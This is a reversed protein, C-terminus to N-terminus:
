ATGAYGAVIRGIVLVLAPRLFVASWYQAWDTEHNKYTESHGTFWGILLAFGLIMPWPPVPMGFYPTVFWGWLATLVIVSLLSNIAVLGAVAALAVVLVLLM